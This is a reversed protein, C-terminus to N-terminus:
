SEEKTVAGIEAVLQIVFSPQGEDEVLAAAKVREPFRAAFAKAVDRESRAFHAILIRTRETEKLARLADDVRNFVAVDAEVDQADVLQDVIVVGTIAIAVQKIAMAVPNTAHQTDFNVFLTPKNM